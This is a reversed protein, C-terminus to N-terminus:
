RSLQDRQAVFNEQCRKATSLLQPYESSSRISSLTPDKQLATYSCYKGDIASKLLRQAAETQGCVAMFTASLYRNEPDPNALMQPEIQRTAQDLEASPPQTISTRALCAQYFKTPHMDPPLSRGLDRAEALKGESLLVRLANRNSWESGQEIRLFDMAREHNGLESFTFTCSRILSNGSDLSYALDCERASEELLGAYRLTYGLVM